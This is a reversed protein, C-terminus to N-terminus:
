SGKLTTQELGGVRSVIKLYRGAHLLLGVQISKASFNRTGDTCQGSVGSLDMHQWLGAGMKLRNM